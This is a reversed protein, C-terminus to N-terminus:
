KNDHEKVLKIFIDELPMLRKEFHDIDAKLEILKSLLDEKKYPDKLILHTKNDIQGFIHEVM